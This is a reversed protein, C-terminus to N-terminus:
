SGGLDGVRRELRGQAVDCGGALAFFVLIRYRGLKERPGRRGVPRNNGKDGDGGGGTRKDRNDNPPRRGSGHDHDLVRRKRERESDVPTITAAM